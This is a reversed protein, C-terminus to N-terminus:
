LGARWSLAPLRATIKTLFKEKDLETFFSIHIIVLGPMEKERVSRCSCMAIIEQFIGYSAFDNDALTCYLNPMASYNLGGTRVCFVKIAAQQM